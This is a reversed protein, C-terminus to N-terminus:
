QPNPKYRGAQRQTKIDGLKKFAMVEIEAKRLRRELFQIQKLQLDDQCLIRDLKLTKDTKRKYIESCVAEILDQLKRIDKMERAMKLLNDLIFEEENLLNKIESIRKRSIGDDKFLTGNEEEELELEKEIAELFKPDFISDKFNDCAIGEM